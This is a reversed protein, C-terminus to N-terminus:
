SCGTVLYAAEECNIVVYITMKQLLHLSVLMFVLNDAYVAGVRYCRWCLLWARNRVSLKQIMGNFYVM